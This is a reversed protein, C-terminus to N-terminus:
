PVDVYPPLHLAVVWVEDWWTKGGKVTRRTEDARIQSCETPAQGQHVAAAREQHKERTICPRTEGHLNKM